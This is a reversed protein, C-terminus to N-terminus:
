GDGAKNREELQNFDETPVRLINHALLSIAREICSNRESKACTVYTILPHGSHLCQLIGQCKESVAASSAM